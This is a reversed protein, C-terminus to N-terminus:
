SDMGLARREHRSLGYLDAVLEDIQMEVDTVSIGTATLRRNVLELLQRMTQTSVQAPDPVPTKKLTKVELMAYGSRYVHSHTAIHWYCAHSNLVAVFYRLLDKEAGTDKPYLLPARSIAYKGKSDFSFRPVLVLHPTVIKPRMMNEPSRPREPRWWPIVKSRVPPRKSLEEKHSLLYKWTQSFRKRLENENIQQGDIFPYFVYQSTRRPVKYSQMERDPLYPVFIEEEGAPVQEDSVIFIDDAGSIFGQRVHLFDEIVPLQEFKWKITSETPPVIMWEDAGFVGQEVEYVSYTPKEVRRGDLADQLAMGVMDQCKIITAPPAEQNTTPRKQFILLVIYSGTEGFVRIASLDALCLIWSASTLERRMRSASKSLLFSHPLVFLGFGGPKLMELGIRLFPLYADVRGSAYNAMFESIRERIAVPQLQPPVFPPNAIVAEQSNKLQPNKQFYEIAEKSFVNLRPPFSSTLALSLLALSLRTAQAANIDVDLGLVNEFADQILSTTVGSQIPEFKLELLTRLFIGSGCAPDSARIRRFATPPMQEQLFRAFFRAVFQPTYVGGYAKSKEEEPLRPFMSLQARQPSDVSRLISVYHEYIRSLAHKSMVSFDYDYPVASNRYFDSLLVRVTEADLDDFAKLQGKDLLYSPIREKDKFSSITRFLVDRISLQRGNTETLLKLLAKDGRFPEQHLLSAKIRNSHDEVARAFMIGNFLASLAENTARDGMEASLKRKWSSITEILADDLAPLNPNPRKGVIQEFIESRLKDVQGRSLRYNAVISATETPPIRNYVIFAENSGIQIHWDVLNNYSLSLVRNREFYNLDSYTRPSRLFTLVATNELGHEVLLHATAIEDVQPAHFRDSPRWGLEDAFDNLMLLRDAESLPQSTLQLIIDYQDSM